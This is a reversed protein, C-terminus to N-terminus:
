HGLLLELGPTFSAGHSAGPDWEVVQFTVTRGCWQPLCPLTLSSISNSAPIPLAFEIVHDVLFRGGYASSRNARGFGVFMCGPTLVGLSNSATITITEGLRPALNSLLTPIGNTGAHGAGYTTALATTGCLDLSHQNNTEDCESHIGAGTGDDDANAFIPGQLVTGSPVSWSLDEFDSPDLRQTTSVTALLTGGANPDGDYFSVPVGAPAFIAGGNGVRVGITTFGVCPLMLRSATLDPSATPSVSNLVNQRYNNFPSGAPTLWSHQEVQPIAGDDAVNTIHYSHQNWVPRTAVWDDRSSGYVFVGRQPGFGCNDNAVAVIEANGDGDVDAVLVYEHWTCSSMPTDWLVVGDRGRYVRLRLEDRYVVEAEGDGDFDFVSSGTRNSSGDQTVAAWILSGNTDFVAYRTAGAVGVEPQGDADYDAITPPGGGGGGPIPTSWLLSGDTDLLYVRGAAVVVVEADADADFDGIAPTGDPISATWEIQGSASYLTNGAAVEPSGDRDIDAVCSIPGVTGQSGRGGTGTWLLNGNHDLAQRGIVIEVDGDQDLDALAPAGWNIAELNPSRWKFTGDHEFAILRRGSDDCAIIEPRGDADIDGTAISAATNVRQTPDTVTFRETGDRGDLARLVGVEVNGGGRSSTSAFLLEPLRDGDLDIVNPTMMVNLSTPDVTSSTWSWELVPSLPGPQPQVFCNRGTDGLNNTENSEVIVNTSDAFAWILDDRFRQSGAISITIPLKTGAAHGPVTTQGLTQDVGPDFAGNRNSDEFVLVVFATNIPTTSANSVFVDLDGSFALTQANRTLASRDFRGVVLDPTQALASAALTCCLVAAALTPRTTM